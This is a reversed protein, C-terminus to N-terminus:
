RTSSSASTPPGAGSESVARRWGSFFASPLLRSSRRAPQRAKRGSGTSTRRRRPLCSATAARSGATWRAVRTGRPSERSQPPSADATVCPTERGIARPPLQYETDIADTLHATTHGASRPCSAISISRPAIAPRAEVRANRGHCRLFRCRPAGGRVRPPRHHAPPLVRCGDLVLSLPQSQTDDSAVEKRPLPLVFHSGAAHHNGGSIPVCTSLVPRSRWCHPPGNGWFATIECPPDYPQSSCVLTRM